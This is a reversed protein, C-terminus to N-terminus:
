LSGRRRLEDPSTAIRVTQRPAAAPPPVAAAAAQVTERAAEATTEASRVANRAVDASSEASKATLLSGMGLLLKLGGDGGARQLGRSKGALFGSALGALVIRGPTWAEKWSATFQRWDAAASRERAELAQEAQEVKSQLEEFSM